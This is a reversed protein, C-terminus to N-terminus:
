LILKKKFKGRMYRYEISVRDKPDGGNGGEFKLASLQDRLGCTEGSIDEYVWSVDLEDNFWIQLETSTKLFTIVGAGQLFGETGKYSEYKKCSKADISDSSMAFWVLDSSDGSGKM